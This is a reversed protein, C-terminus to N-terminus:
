LRGRLLFLVLAVLCAMTQIGGLTTVPAFSLVSALWTSLAAAGMSLFGLLASAMGAEKGFPGMTIATGLPNALGMGWLFTIMSLAYWGLGPAAPGVLLLGGGAMACAIGVLTAIRAGHRHALRPAAMGAAFVVFVTAAFYLGTQLSTLGIGQMLIAPAAAFSAFLGSMLLSMSLAPLIFRKDLALRGYALVVSKASHPARRDAPHTEGLDRVYFFALVVAALGVLIFIARWGLTVSLVSGALPSFGPAAATAIMTLSLARALTEGEFLDRAIARSLVSAACVGLAQVVRGAILVDLTTALGAIVTGVVFVSLGGLVLKQRGYRDALPGVVLQGLAFTIFFSSLTLGLERATVGLDKGIEAFAPLIINTSLMSIAALGALLAVVKGTLPQTSAHPQTATIALSTRAEM